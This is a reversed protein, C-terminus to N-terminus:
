AAEEAEERGEDLALALAAAVPVHEARLGLRVLARVLCAAGGRHRLRPAEPRRCAACPEATM